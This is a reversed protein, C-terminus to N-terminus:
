SGIVKLPSHGNNQIADDAAALTTSLKETLTPASIGPQVIAFTFIVRKAQAMIEELVDHNGILFKEPKGNTRRNMKSLFGTKNVTWLQSKVAQMCVEYLDNVRDGPDEGGSGKVHYLEVVIQNDEDRISIHDAVEGSSHDYILIEPNDNRLMNELTEHISNHNGNAVKSAADTYLETKIDTNSAAWNVAEIRNSDFYLDGEEPPKHYDHDIVAAFESLYLHLSFDNLYETLSQSFAGFEIEYHKEPDEQYTYHNDFDYRLPINIDETKLDFVIQQATSNDYDLEIEFDLLQYTNLIEDEQIVHLLPSHKFTDGNWTAVIVPSPFESIPIGVSLNDLGTNTTVQKDSVIKDGIIKCWEIFRPVKEYANSWVKAGSSYGITIAEGEATAKGFVHGNAYLRGHSKRIANEANQGSITRYSEGSNPSRNLMGINFFETNDLDALVKNINYKSIRSYEGEAFEEIVVDYFHHTRITSHIFILGNDENFHIIFLFYRINVLQDSNIWKPRISERSIFIIASHEHSVGQHVIDHNPIELEGEINFGEARYIKVHCYPNLNYFSLDEDEAAAATVEFTDLVQKIEDEEIITQDSLDRIIDNWVAGEEFLQKRGIRVDNPIALFKAEGIDDVNTRAFRGIFQLTVALSKHPRHIAGIKLNPFDFGEGLMDVCIIGDLEARRLKNITQKIYTYTKSSDIRRLRLDTNANYVDTLVKAHAKTDTRVLIFHNLGSKRDENFIRETNKAIAIDAPEDGPDVAYYGIDGFIGDMRAMAVPYSYAIRGKVERKDRRFPTATFYVKKVDPFAQITNTWTFAPVHHAEDVLVLDFLEEPPSVTDTIGQNISNPIGVVIDFDVLNEWDTITQIPSKLEKVSPTALESHFVHCEKLTRLTKLEDVIQGRVLVSSSIVLVRQARLLYASIILVSTKGSGTPMVVLCPDEQHLTFHSGIAHVAGLQANRLGKAGDRTIPLNIRSYNTSFYSM